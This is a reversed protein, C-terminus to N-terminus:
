PKSGSIGHNLRPFDSGNGAKLGGLIYIGVMRIGSGNVIMAARFMSHPGRALCCQSVPPNGPLVSVGVLRQLNSIARGIWRMSM